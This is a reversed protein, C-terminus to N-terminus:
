HPKAKPTGIKIELYDHLQQISRKWKSWHRMTAKIDFHAANGIAALGLYLALTDSYRRNFALL